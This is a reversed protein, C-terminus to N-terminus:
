KLARVIITLLSFLGMLGMCVASFKDVRVSNM